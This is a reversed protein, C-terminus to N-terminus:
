HMLVSEFKALPAMKAKNLSLTNGRIAYNDTKVFIEMFEKETTMDKCAMLTSAFKSFSVRNEGPLSYMGNFTNCGSFGHVKNDKLKLIMFIEKKNDERVITRGMLESLRWYTETLSSNTKNTSDPSATSKLSTCSLALQSLLLLIIKTRRKPQKM